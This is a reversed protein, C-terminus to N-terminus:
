QHDESYYKDNYSNNQNGVPGSIYVSPSVMERKIEADNGSSGHYTSIHTKLSNRSKFRKTCFDCNYNVTLHKAEVHNMANGRNHFYEGCLKCRWNKKSGPTPDRDFYILEEPDQSNSFSELILINTVYYIKSKHVGISIM